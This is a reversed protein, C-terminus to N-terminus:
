YHTYLFFDLRLLIIKCGGHPYIASFRVFPPSCGRRSLAAVYFGIFFMIYLIFTLSFFTLVQVQQRFFSFIELSSSRCIYSYRGLLIQIYQNYQLEQYYTHVTYMVHRISNDIFWWYTGIVGKISILYSEDSQQATCHLYRIYRIGYM